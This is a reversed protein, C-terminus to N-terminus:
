HTPVINDYKVTNTPFGLDHPIAITIRRNSTTEEIMGNQGLYLSVCKTNEPFKQICYLRPLVNLAWKPHGIMVNTLM